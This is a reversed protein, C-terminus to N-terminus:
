LASPVILRSKGRFKCDRKLMSPLGETTGGNSEWVELLEGVWRVEDRCGAVCRLEELVVVHEVYRLRPLPVQVTEHLEATYCVLQHPKSGSLDFVNMGILAFVSRHKREGKWTKGM